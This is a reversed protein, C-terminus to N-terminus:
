EQLAEQRPALLIDDMVAERMEKFMKYWQELDGRKRVFRVRTRQLGEEDGEGQKLFKVKVVLEQADEGDAPQTLRICKNDIKEIQLKGEMHEANYTNLDDFVVGPVVELDFDTMDNFKCCDLVSVQRVLDLMTDGRSNVDERSSEATAQSRQEALQSLIDSRIEKLNVAAQMWPHARIEDISPRSKGEYSFMKIILDKFDSSLNEGGTKKWYTALDGKLILNYFFEDKKAEKFPFIGQVIIFLIVGTSFMDIAMGDYQKGEKIEPAMYTMTGRYSKLNHVKRFTAFGFDAVKLNLSDDVLINELKLDRHVVGKGHMYSLVDLMQSLFFRGGDEGMGGLSQCVDFLLGGTVYELLIYVLNNIERGSPKVVKGDSGWGVINIINEHKLGQLIQIENEVSKISEADRQLFEERLLKLAFVKKPDKINRAMYVKSTNGEGLSQLIEYEGNFVPHKLKASDM